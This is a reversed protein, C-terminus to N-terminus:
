PVSTVACVADKALKIAFAMAEADHSPLSPPGSRGVDLRIVDGHCRFLWGKRLGILLWAAADEDMRGDLIDLVVRAAHGAAITVAADDAVLPEGEETLVEYAGRGAPPPTVNMQECYAGYSSRGAGYPPDRGPLARAVLCGLGGEFVETSVFPKGNEAAVAGLMLGTPVDGTADVIIDCEAVAEIHGAHTRASRQWNLNGAIARITAGPVIHLLRRKVANAKRFGIDRWDLSHREINAPLMVDGDVLVLRHVGSRLLM